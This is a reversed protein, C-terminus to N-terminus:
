PMPYSKFLGIMNGQPDRFIGFKGTNPIEMEPVLITGGAKMVQNLSATVDDTNIYVIVTGAPNQDTVPNFGGGVGDGAKFTTYNMGDIHEIEWGFVDAYFKSLAKRDKAALEIHVITHNTM